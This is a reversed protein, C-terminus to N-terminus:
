RFVMRGDDYQPSIGGSGSHVKVPKRQMSEFETIVFVAQVDWYVSKGM